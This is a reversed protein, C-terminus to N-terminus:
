NSPMGYSRSTLHDLQFTNVTTKSAQPTVMGSRTVKQNTPTYTKQFQGSIHNNVANNPKGNQLALNGVHARQGIDTGNNVFDDLFPASKCNIHQYVSNQHVGVSIVDNSLTSEGLAAMKAQFGGMDGVSNVSQSDLKQIAINPMKSRTKLANLTATMKLRTVSSKSTGASSESGGFGSTSRETKRPATSLGNSKIQPTSLAFLSHRKAYISTNVKTNQHVPITQM